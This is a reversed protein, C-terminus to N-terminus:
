WLKNANDEPPKDEPIDSDPSWLPLYDRLNALQGIDVEIRISKRDNMKLKLFNKEPNYQADLIDILEYSRKGWRYRVEVGKQSFLVAKPLKWLLYAAFAPFLFLQLIIVRVVFDTWYDLPVLVPYPSKPQNGMFHLIPIEFLGTAEIGVIAIAIPMTFVPALIWSSTLTNSLRVSRCKRAVPRLDAKERDAAVEAEKELSEEEAGSSEAVNLELDIERKSEKGCNWCEFFDITNTNGCYICSWTSGMSNLRTYLDRVVPTMSHEFQDVTVEGEMLEDFVYSLDYLDDYETKEISGHVGCKTCGIFFAQEDNDPYIAYREPTGCMRCDILLCEVGLHRFVSASYEM